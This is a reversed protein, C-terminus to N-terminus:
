SFLTMSNFGSAISIASRASASRFDPPASPGNCPMGTSTFSLQSVASLIAVVDPDSASTPDFGGSSENTTFCSRLAPATSIPLVFRVSHLLMRPLWEVPPHLPRPPNVRFGYASSRLGDPDLEPEATATEDLKHATATPVSVSPDIKHGADTHPTTPILGVTPSTPRVPIM